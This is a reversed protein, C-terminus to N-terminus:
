TIDETLAIVYRPKGAADRLLSFRGTVVVLPAMAAFTASSM